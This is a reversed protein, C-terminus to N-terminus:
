KTLGIIWKLWSLVTKSRRGMTSEKLSVNNDRMISIILENNPLHGSMLYIKFTNYFVTHSLILTSLSLQREKYSMNLIKMGKDSLCYRIEKAEDCRIVLGLYTCGRLYYQAQRTDFCFINAIDIYNVYKEYRNNIVEIINVIIPFTDCQPFLEKGDGCEPILKDQKINMFVNNIDDMTIIKSDVSYKQQRIYQISDYKNCNAFQYEILRYIGNSYTIFVTKIPKNITNIFTRYPYYLQRVIFNDFLINKCEFIVFQSPSELAYDIEIQAGDISLDYNAIIFDFKGSGMRGSVTSVLQRDDFFDSFIHAIDATALAVSESTIRDPKISQIWDPFALTKIGETEDPIDHYADFKGLVYKKGGIPLISINNNRMIKPRALRHDFKTALRPEYIEKIRDSTIEFLEGNDIRALTEDDLFHEWVTDVKRNSADLFLSKGTKQM